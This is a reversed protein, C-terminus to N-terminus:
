YMKFLVTNFSHITYLNCSIFHEAQVPLDEAQAAEDASTTQHGHGARGVQVQEQTVKVQEGHHYNVNLINVGSEGVSNAQSVTRGCRREGLASSTFRNIKQKM